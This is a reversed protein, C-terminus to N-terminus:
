TGQWSRNTGSPPAIPIVVLQNATTNASKQGSEVTKDAQHLPGKECTVEVRRTQRRCCKSQRCGRKQKMSVLNNAGSSFGPFDDEDWISPWRSLFPSWRVLTM